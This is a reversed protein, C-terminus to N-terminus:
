LVNQLSRIEPKELEEPSIELKNEKKHPADLFVAIKGKWMDLFVPISMRTKGMSPDALFVTDNKVGRLVSFHKYDKTELYVLMPRDIKLLSEEKLKVAYVQYGLSESLLKLDLISLGKEIVEKQKEESLSEIFDSLMKREELSDDGFYYKFLTLLSSMGCSFDYKQMVVNERKLGIFTKITREKAQGTNVSACSSLFFTIFIFIIPKM